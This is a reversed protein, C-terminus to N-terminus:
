VGEVGFRRVGDDHGREGTEGEGGGGASGGDGPEVDYAGLVLGGGWGGGCGDGRLRCGRRRGLSGGVPGGRRWCGGDCCDRALSGGRSM